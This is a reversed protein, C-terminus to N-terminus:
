KFNRLKPIEQNIWEENSLSRRLNPPAEARAAVAAAAAVATAVLM